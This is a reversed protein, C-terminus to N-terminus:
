KPAGSVACKIAYIADDESESDQDPPTSETIGVRLTRWPTTKWSLDDNFQFLTLTGYTPGSEVRAHLADDAAGTHERELEIDDVEANVLNTTPFYNGTGRRKRTNWKVGGGTRVDWPGTDTGDDLVLLAGFQNEGAM